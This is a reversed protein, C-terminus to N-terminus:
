AMWRLYSSLFIVIIGLVLNTYAFIKFLKMALGIGRIVEGYGSLYGVPKFKKLIAIGHPSEKIEDTLDKWAEHKGAHLGDRWLPSSSFDYVVGGVSVLVDEGKKLERYEKLDRVDEHIVHSMRFKKNLYFTLTLATIVMFIYIAIKALVVNGSKSNILANISSFRYLTLVAGSIGTGAIGIWGLVLEKKPAGGLAVVDPTHVLHVFFIAGIWLVASLIHIFGVAFVFSLNASVDPPWRHSIRYAEGVDNLEGISPNTHCVSCDQGTQNAYRPLANSPFILCSILSIILLPIVFRM